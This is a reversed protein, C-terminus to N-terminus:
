HNIGDRILNEKKVKEEWLYIHRIMLGGDQRAKVVLRVCNVQHGMSKLFIEQSLQGEVLHGLVVFTACYQPMGEPDYGLEVQGKGLAYKGDMISGTMVQVKRLNTPRNLIVTLHDGVNVDHTWFYSEDLTYAEWPFHVNSVTMDTFVAAPPNDPGYPNNKPGSIAKPTDDFRPHSMRYYFLFPRCLISKEQVMLTRFHLILKDLPKEQHFLLLFHALLPLDRSHFLKGLFGIDSFELIVWQQFKMATVQSYIQTFFNPSCFVNDEILLFYTSLNTAFSMLFAHDVNQKSYFGGSNAENRTGDVAPYVDPPAHILLLQGALIQPSFLRSIHAITEKLWPLDSDALHILVTLHKEEEPSSAQYLSVLTYM